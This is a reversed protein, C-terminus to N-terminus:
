LTPDVSLKLDVKGLRKSKTLNYKEPEGDNMQLYFDEKKPENSKDSM